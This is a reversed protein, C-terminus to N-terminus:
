MSMIANEPPDNVNCIPKLSATTRPKCSIVPIELPCSAYRLMCSYHLGARVCGHKKPMRLMQRDKSSTAEPGTDTTHTHTHTNKLFSTSMNLIPRAESLQYVESNTGIDVYRPPHLLVRFPLRNRSEVYGLVVRVHVPHTVTLLSCRKGGVSFAWYQPGAPRFWPQTAPRRHWCGPPRQYGGAGHDAPPDQDPMEEAM